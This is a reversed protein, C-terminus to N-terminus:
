SIAHRGASFYAQRRQCAASTSGGLHARLGQRVHQTREGGCEARLGGAVQEHPQAVGIIGGDIAQIVFLGDNGRRIEERRHHVIGIGEAGDGGGVGEAVDVGHAAVREEGQVEDAEGVVEIGLNQGLNQAAARLLHALRARQDRAPMGDGVVLWLIAEGRNAEHMGRADEGFAARARAIAQHQRLGDARSDDRGGGFGLLRILGIQRSGDLAHHPQIARGHARQPRESFLRCAQVSM